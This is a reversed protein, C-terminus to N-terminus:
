KSKIEVLVNNETFYRNMIGVIESSDVNLYKALEGSLDKMDVGSLYNRTLFLARKEPSYYHDMYDLKFMNKIKTLEKQSILSSKLKNIESFLAKKAIEKTAENNSLIFFKFVSLDIRRETGGTLRLAIKNREILKRYLRSSKGSFLLYDIMTLIYSDSSYSPGTRYGLRFGPTSVNENIVVKEYKKQDFNGKFSPPSPVHKSPDISQFYKKVLQLTRENEIDGTICLVANNPKYYTDYFDQADQMTLYKLDNEYGSLPHSYAFEPYILQDFVLSSDIFPDEKKQNRLMEILLNKTEEVNSYNLNLSNMRDSELWLVLPLQNSAVTQYFITRDWSTIANFEGGIKHIFTIHQMPGVNKSGMFMLNELLRALGTKEKEEYASGVKYACIVTVLPFTSDKSLIITLGNKLSYVSFPFPEQVEMLKVQSFGTYIFNFLCLFVILKKLCMVTKPRKGVLILSHTQEM